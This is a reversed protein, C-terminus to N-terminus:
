TNSNTRLEETRTTAVRIRQQQGREERAISAYSPPPEDHFVPPIEYPPPRITYPPLQHSLPYASDYFTESRVESCDNGGSRRPQSPTTGVVAIATHHSVTNEQRSERVRNIHKCWRYCASLLLLLCFGATAVLVVQM